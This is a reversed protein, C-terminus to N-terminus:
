PPPENPMPIQVGLVAAWHRIKEMWQEWEETTLKTSSTRIWQGTLKSRTKFGGVEKVLYEHIDDESVTDGEAEFMRKVAPVAVGWYYRNERTSRKAKFERLSLVLRKGSLSRIVAALQKATEHPMGSATATFHLERQHTM